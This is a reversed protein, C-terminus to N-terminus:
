ELVMLYEPPVSKVNIVGNDTIYFTLPADKNIKFIIPADKKSHRKGVTRATELDTSLHVYNRSQPTLGDRMIVAELDPSTGHYMDKSPTYREFMIDVYPLSHGQNCRIYDDEGVLSYRKKDDNHVIEKLEDLTLGDHHQSKNLNLLLMDVRTYGNSDIFLKLIEPKHRLVLCLFQSMKKLRNQKNKKKQDQKHQSNKM